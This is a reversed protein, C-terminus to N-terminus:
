IVGTLNLPDRHNDPFVENFFSVTCDGISEELM